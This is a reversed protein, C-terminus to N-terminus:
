TKDQMRINTNPDIKPDWVGGKTNHKKIIIIIVVIESILFLIFINGKGSIYFFLFFFFFLFFSFLARRDTEKVILTIYQIKPQVHNVLSSQFHLNEVFLAKESHSVVECYTILIGFLPASKIKKKKKKPNLELPNPRFSIGSKKINYSKLM